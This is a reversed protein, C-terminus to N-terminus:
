SSTQAIEGIAEELEAGCKEPSNNQLVAKRANKGLRRREDPDELLRSIEESLSRVDEVLIGTEGHDVQERMGQDKNTVVPLAHLQAELIVNPYGDFHSVYVFIESQQYLPSVNDVHGLLHIRESVTDSLAECNDVHNRLRDYYMGDGAVVYVLNEDKELLEIINSITDRVGEYKDLFQLNTVTLIITQDDQNEESVLRDLSSPDVHTNVVKISSRPLSSKKEIASRLYRSVVIVGDAWFITGSDIVLLTIYKVWQLLDQVLSFESLKQRHAKWPDGGLRLIAPISFLKGFVVALLSTIGGRNSLIVDVDENRLITLLEKAGVVCRRLSSDIDSLDVIVSDETHELPVRVKESRDKTVALIKMIPIKLTSVM